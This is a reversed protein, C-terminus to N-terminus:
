ALCVILGDVHYNLYGAYVATTSNRRYYKKFARKFKETFYEKKM